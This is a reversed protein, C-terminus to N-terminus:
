LNVRKQTVSHLLGELGAIIGSWDYEQEVMSRANQGLHKALQNDDFLSLVGSAFGEATNRILAHEGDVLPIGEAAVPTCVIANGTAMANLIKLRVGSGVFQPAIFVRGRVLYPREDAVRGIFTVGKSTAFVEAPGAGILELKADAKERRIIPLVKRCFWVMGDLKTYATLTGVHIIVNARRSETSVQFRELDTGAGVVTPQLGSYQRRIAAADVDTIMSFGDATRLISEEYRVLKGLQWRGAWRRIPNRQRSVFRRVTSTLVNHARIFFPVGCADRLVPGYSGMAVDEILVVDVREQRLLSKAGEMLRGEIYRSISFPLRNGTNALVQRWRPPKHKYFYQSRCIKEKAQTQTDKSHTIAMLYVENGLKQLHMLDYYVVIQYGSRVPYPELASLVLIRMKTM